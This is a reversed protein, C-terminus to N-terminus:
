CSRSSRTNLVVLEYGSIHCRCSVLRDNDAGIVAKAPVALLWLGRQRMGGFCYGAGFMRAMDAIRQVILEHRADIQGADTLM